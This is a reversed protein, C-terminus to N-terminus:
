DAQATVADRSGASSLPPIGNAAIIDTYEETVKIDKWRVRIAQRNKSCQVQKRFNQLFGAPDQVTAIMRGLPVDLNLLRMRGSDLQFTIPRCDDAPLPKTVDFEASFDIAVPVRGDRLIRYLREIALADDNSIGKELSITGVAAVRGQIFCLKEVIEVDGLLRASDHVRGRAREVAVIAQGTDLKVVRLCGGRHYAVLFALADREEHVTRSWKLKQFRLHINARGDDLETCVLTFLLVPNQHSNSFTMEKKGAKVRRLEVYPMSASGEPSDM